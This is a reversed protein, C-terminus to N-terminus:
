PGKPVPSRGKESKLEFLKDAVGSPPVELTLETKDNYKQPIISEFQPIGAGGMAPDKIPPLERTARIEVKKKGPKAMLDFKGATIKGADPGQTPDEPVLIIEGDTIDKGDLTVRGTVKALPNGCGASCVAACVVSFLLFRYM